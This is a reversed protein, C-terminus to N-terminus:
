KDDLSMWGSRQVNPKQQTTDEILKCEDLLLLRINAHKRFPFAPPSEVIFASYGNFREARRLLMRSVPYTPLM